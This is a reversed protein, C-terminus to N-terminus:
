YLFIEESNWSSDPGIESHSPLLIDLVELIEELLPHKHLCLNPDTRSTSLFHVLKNM